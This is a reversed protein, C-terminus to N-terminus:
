RSADLSLSREGDVGAATFPRDGAMSTACAETRANYSAIRAKSALRRLFPTRVGEVVELFATAPITFSVLTSMAM